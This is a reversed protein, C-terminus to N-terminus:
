RYSLGFAFFRALLPLEGVDREAVRVDVRPLRELGAHELDERLDADRQERRVVARLDELRDPQAVSSTEVAKTPVGDRM